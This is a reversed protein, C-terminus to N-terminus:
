FPIPDIRDKIALIRETSMHQCLFNFDDRAKNLTYSFKKHPYPFGSCFCVDYERQDRFKDRVWQKAKCSPCTPVQGPRDYWEVPMRLTMRTGCSRKLKKGPYRKDHHPRIKNGCRYHVCCKLYRSGVNSDARRKKNRDRHKMKAPPKPPRYKM